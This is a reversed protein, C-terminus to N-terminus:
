RIYIPFFIEVIGSSFLWHDLIIYYLINCKNCKNKKIHLMFKISKYVRYYIKKFNTVINCKNCKNKVSFILFNKEMYLTVRFMKSLM